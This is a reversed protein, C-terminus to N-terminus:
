LSLYILAPTEVQKYLAYPLVSWCVCMKKGKNLMCWRGVCVQWISQTFNYLLNLSAEKKVAQWIVSLFSYKLNGKFNFCFLLQHPKVQHLSQFLNKKVQSKSHPFISEGCIVSFSLWDQLDFKLVVETTCILLSTHVNVFDSHFSYNHSWWQQVRVRMQFM